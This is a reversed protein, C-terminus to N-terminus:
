GDFTVGEPFLTQQLRQKQDLSSEVWLRAPRLIIQEAFELVRDIQLDELETGRLEGRVSDIEATLQAVYENYADDDVKGDLRKNTPTNKRSEIQSLKRSLASRLEEADGERQIWVTRITTKIDRMSDADPAMRELWAIFKAHLDDPKTKVAECNKRNPKTTISATLPTGCNHCRVFVRLPFEPRQREYGTLNPRRGALVDQVTDFMKQTVLPTHSGRILDERDSFQMSGAYFPNVLVKQFTQM